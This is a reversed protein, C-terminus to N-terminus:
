PNRAVRFGAYMSRNDPTLGNRTSSRCSDWGVGWGGGRIVRFTGTSPGVPNTQSSSGYTGFWDQCWEWVNGSMDHLGLGNAAKGAVVRTQCQAGAACSGTYFWAINTLQNDDNTGAPNAPWGHFATLTGARCAYEWEAETPLRLGTANRFITIDNWSVQEVPRTAASPWSSGQFLSPNLGMKATWQTQTVETRGMYFAATLSVVHTPSESADCAFTNSRTCGRTYVGPPILVMEISTGNDRVRWPLRTESIRTRLSADTIVAPNPSWELVTGWPPGACPGFLVLMSGLDGADVTGSGDLDAPSGAEGFRLLMAGIDAADVIGSGDLDARCPVTQAQALSGLALAGAAAALIPLRLLAPLHRPNRRANM